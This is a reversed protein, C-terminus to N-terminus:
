FVGWAPVRRFAPQPKRGEPLADRVGGRLADMLDEAPHQLPDPWPMWEGGRLERVYGNFAGILHSCRPHILLDPERTASGVLLELTDLGDTVGHTPWFAVIRPGFVREYEGFAAPGVGTRATAAPDLRVRELRGNCLRDALRRLAEANDASVTDVALYDGFVTV